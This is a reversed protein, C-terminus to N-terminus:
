KEIEYMAKVAVLIAALENNSLEARRQTMPTITDVITHLTQPLTIVIKNENIYQEITYDDIVIM